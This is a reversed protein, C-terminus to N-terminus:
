RLRLSWRAWRTKWRLKGTRMELAYLFGDKSGFVTLDNWLRAIVCHGIRNRVEM